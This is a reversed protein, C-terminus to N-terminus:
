SLSGRLVREMAERVRDPLPRGTCGQWSEELTKIGLRGTFRALHEVAPSESLDPLEPYLAACRVIWCMAGLTDGSAEALLGLNGCSRAMGLTDGLSEQITLSKKCFEEAVSLDDRMMAIAGLRHYTGALQGSDGFPELIESSRKYFREAVHLDGKDEAIGGL